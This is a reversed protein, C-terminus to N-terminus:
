PAAKLLRQVRNLEERSRFDLPNLVTYQNEIGPLRAQNRHLLWIGQEGERFKPSDHWMVDDSHPFLLTVEHGPLKGKLVSEGLINAQYWDPDHESGIHPVDAPRVNTVRGVIIIEATALEDLLKEDAMKQRTSKIQEGLRQVDVTSAVRGVEIVAMSNGLLWGKTFFIAQTGPKVSRPDLLQVTIQKGVLGPPAGPGDIVQDVRVVATFASANVAPMTSAGTKEVTGKFVLTAQRTLDETTNITQATAGPFRAPQVLLLTVWFVVPLPILKGERSLLWRYLLM